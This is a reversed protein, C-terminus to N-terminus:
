LNIRTAYTHMQPHHKCGLLPLLVPCNRPKYLAFHFSDKFSFHEFVIRIQLKQKINEYWKIKMFNKYFFTKVNKGNGSKLSKFKQQPCKIIKFMKPQKFM